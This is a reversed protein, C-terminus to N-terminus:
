FYMLFHFLSQKKVKKVFQISIYFQKKLEQLDIGNETSLSAYSIGFHIHEFLRATFDIDLDDRIEEKALCRNLAKRWEEIQLEIWKTGVEVFNPYYFLAHNTINIYAMNLNKIGFERAQQKQINILEIYKDIYDLMSSDEFIEIKNFLSSEEIIFKDCMAIFLNEKTKFHYLIGGTTLGSQMAIEELSINTYPKTAYLYFAAELARRITGEKNRTRSM